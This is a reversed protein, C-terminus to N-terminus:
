SASEKNPVRSFYVVVLVSLALFLTSLWSGFLFWPDGGAASFAQRLGSELSDALIFAIAFPLVSVDLRRMLYGLVGFALAILVAALSAEQAYIATITILLVAPMLVAPPVAAMAGMARMVAGGLTWNLINAFLMIAFLGFVVVAEPNVTDPTLRFVNPGPNFGGISEAALVIFVAAVNGPIGLSLVPILNAGSVASNAAETAAVGAPAGEGFAPRGRHGRRAAAYGLTAALTSGIGPLAGIVTGIAASRGIVPLLGVYERLSLRGDPGGSLRGARPADRHGRALDDMSRFIEGLILVGLVAAIVPIGQALADSGLTLRPYPDEGRGISACFLGLLGSLVGKIPAGGVIAAVFSLSLIILAAKEGFGLHAEVLVALFPASTILVLDSLTDGTVSSLHAIRLAKGAQGRRAMPYGDLTTLLADPTGPTNFLIAPVAGGVTSGKMVGILFGIVPLLADAGFGFISILIPLSVAMAFPGSLGPVAGVVVGLLLGAAVMSVTVTVPLGLIVFLPDAMFVAQLGLVIYDGLDLM